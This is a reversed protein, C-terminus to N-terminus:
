AYPMNRRNQKRLDRQELKSAIPEVIPSVMKDALMSTGMFAAQGAINEGLSSSVMPSQTLLHHIKKAGSGIAGAGKRAGLAGLGKTLYHQGLLAGGLRTAIAAITPLLATKEIGYEEARKLFGETFFRNYNEQNM